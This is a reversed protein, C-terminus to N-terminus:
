DQRVAERITFSWDGGPTRAAVKDPIVEPGALFVNSGFHAQMRCLRKMRESTIADFLRAFDDTERLAAIRSRHWAVAEEHAERLGPLALLAAKERAVAADMRRIRRCSDANMNMRFWYALGQDRGVHNVRGRDRKVLFAEASRVAYHNVQVLDYGWCAGTMRWGSRWLAQPLPRGAGDVWRIGDRAADVLGRPRHVGLRRFLGANRYLTKFGWAQHPRPSFAPACRDFQEVVPRDEFAVRDASGFLRWPMSIVTAEPVTDFLDALRGAGARIDLYEDVDLTLLWGASTVCAEAEAARFAAHQPVGGQRRYPNERHVVIGHDSLLDLLRDTGDACDNSYVLFRDIGIARNHAIWDLIYPGENKMATVVTVPGSAPVVPAAPSPSPRRLPKRAFGQGLARSVEADEVLTTKDVIKAVPAGPFAVGMARLFRVPAGLAVPAGVVRVFRFVAADSLPGPAVCWRSVVRGENRRAHIHDHHPAWAGRRLRWPYYERGQLPVVRGPGAEARAFAGPGDQPLLLDAIDLFAVSRAQALFRRRLTELLITETFPAHWPDAPAAEARVHEPAGPALGPHRADPHGPRGMPRDASVLLVQPAVDGLGDLGKALDEAFGEDSGPMARDFILAADAGQCANFALWDLVAAATEGNRITLLVRRGGLLGVEPADAAGDARLAALLGGGIQRMWLLRDGAMASVAGPDTGSMYSRYEVDGAQVSSLRLGGAEPVASLQRRIIRGAAGM